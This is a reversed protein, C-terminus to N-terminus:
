VPSNQSPVKFCSAVVAKWFRYRSVMLFGDGMENTAIDTASVNSNVVCSCFAKGMHFISSLISLHALCVLFYM